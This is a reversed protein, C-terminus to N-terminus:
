RRRDSRRTVRECDIGVLDLTDAVVVDRGEGCGIVDFSGDRAHIRDDGAQGFIRDRGKGGTIVDAGGLGCLQDAGASGQIADARESGSRTCLPQWHPSSARQPLKFWRTGRGNPRTVRLRTTGLRPGWFSAPDANSGHLLFRGDPSWTVSGGGPMRSMVRGRTDVVVVEDDDLDYWRSPSSTLRFVIRSGDPSWAISVMEGPVGNEVDANARFISRAPGAGLKLLYLDSSASGSESRAFALTTGDPSWAPSWDHGRTIRRRGRGDAGVVFVGSGVFHALAWRKSGGVYALQSGDPSWAPDSGQQARVHIRRLRADGVMITPTNGYSTFAISRGDPSWEPDEANAGLRRLLQADRGTPGTVFLDNHVAGVVSSAIVASEDPRWVPRNDLLDPARWVRDAKGDALVRVQGTAVDAVRLSGDDSAVFALKRGSPSWSPNVGAGLEQIVTGTPTTVSLQGGYVVTAVHAGSPAVSLRDVRAFPKVAGGDLTVYVFGEPSRRVYILEGDPSWEIEGYTGPAVEATEGSAIDVVALGSSRGFYAVKAGDPSWSFQHVEGAAIRTPKGEVGAIYLGDIGRYAFTVGRPSWQPSFGHPTEFTTTMTATDIVVITRSSSDGREGVVHRSDPAWSGFAPLPRPNSGDAAALVLGAGERWLVTKTGDPSLAPPVAARSTKQRRGGDLPFAYIEPRANEVVAGAYVILGNRAPGAGDAPIVAVLGILLALGLKWRHAM